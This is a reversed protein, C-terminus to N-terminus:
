FVHSESAETSIKKPMREKHQDSCLMLIGGDDIEEVTQAVPQM